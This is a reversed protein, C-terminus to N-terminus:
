MTLSITFNGVSSVGTAGSPIVNNTFNLDQGSTGVNGSIRNAAGSTRMNFGLITGATVSTDQTIANATAVSPNALTGSGFATASFGLSALESGAGGATNTLQLSGSNFLASIGNLAAQPVENTVVITM